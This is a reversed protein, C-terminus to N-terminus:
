GYAGQDGKLVARIKAACERFAQARAEARIRAVYSVSPDSSAADTAKATTDIDLALWYFEATRPNVWPM